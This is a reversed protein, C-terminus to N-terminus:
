SDMICLAEGIDFDQVLAIRKDCDKFVYQCLM